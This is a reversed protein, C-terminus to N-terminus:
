ISTICELTGSCLPSHTAVTSCAYLVCAQLLSSAPKWVCVLFHLHLQKIGNMWMPYLLTHQFTCVSDTLWFHGYFTNTHCFLIFLTYCSNVWSVQGKRPMMCEKEGQPSGQMSLLLCHVSTNIVATTKRGARKLQAHHRLTHNGAM